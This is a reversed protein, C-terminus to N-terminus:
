EVANAHGLPKDLQNKPKQVFDLDLGCESSGLVQPDGNQPSDLLATRERWEEKDNTVINKEASDALDFPGRGVTACVVERHGAFVASLEPLYHGQHVFESIGRSQADVFVLSLNERRLLHVDPVLEGLAWPGLDLHGDVVLVQADEESPLDGGVVDELHRYGLQLAPHPLERWGQSHERVPM